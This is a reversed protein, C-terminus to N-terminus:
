GRLRLIRLGGSLVLVGILTGIVLDPVASGSVAVLVGAVIVGINALVDNTSFIWSAKMHAGAGRQKALLLLCTVNAVLAVVGMGMMLASLPESGYVARRGVEALAGLALLVQLVGSLRAARLQLSKARGVAYLAVGYVAADAFMDLSDAILGTSQAYWGVGIEVLFMLANIALLQQLVRSQAADDASPAPPMVDDAPLAASTVLRTGFGLPELRALVDAAQGAHVVTLTRAPLDFALSRVGQAGDLALRVLREEGACDMKAIHFTTRQLNDNGNM